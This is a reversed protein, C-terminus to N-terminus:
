LEKKVAITMGKGMGYYDYNESPGYNGPFEKKTATNLECLKLKKSFNVSKCRPEIHCMGLCKYSELVETEIHLVKQSLAHNTVLYMIM